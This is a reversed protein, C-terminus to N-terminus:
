FQSKIPRCTYYNQVIIYLILSSKFHLLVCNTLHGQNRTDEAKRQRHYNKHKGIARSSPVAPYEKRHYSQHHQYVIPTPQVAIVFLM